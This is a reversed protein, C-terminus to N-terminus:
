LGSLVSQSERMKTEQAVLTQALKFLRDREDRIAAKVHTAANQMGDQLQTKLVNELDTLRSTSRAMAMRVNNIAKERASDRAAASTSAPTGAISDNHAMTASQMNPTGHHDPEQHIDPGRGVAAAAAAPPPLPRPDVHPTEPVATMPADPAASDDEQLQFIPEARQGTLYVECKLLHNKMRQINDACADKQCHLCFARKQAHNEDQQGFTLSNHINQM